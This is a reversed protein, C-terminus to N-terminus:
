ANHFIITIYAFPVLKKKTRAAVKVRAELDANIRKLEEVRRIKAEVGRSFEAEQVKLEKRLQLMKELTSSAASSVKAEETRKAEEKGM